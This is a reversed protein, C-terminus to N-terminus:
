VPEADRANNWSSGPTRKGSRGSAAATATMALREKVFPPVRRREGTFRVTRYNTHNRRPRTQHPGLPIIGAGGDASATGRAPDAAYVGLRNLCAIQLPHSTPRVLCKAGSTSRRASSNGVGQKSMVRCSEGPARWRSAPPRERDRGSKGPPRREGWGSLILVDHEGVTYQAEVTVAWPSSTLLGSPAAPRHWREESADM